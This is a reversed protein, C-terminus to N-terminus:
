TTRLEELMQITSLKTSCGPLWLSGKGDCIVYYIKREPEHIYSAMVSFLSLLCLYACDPDIM